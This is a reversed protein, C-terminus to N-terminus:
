GLILSQASRPVLRRALWVAVATALLTAGFKLPTAAFPSALSPSAAILRTAAFMPLLHFLYVFYSSRGFRSLAGDRVSVRGHLAFITVIVALSVLKSSLKLQSAALVPETYQLAMAEGISVALLVVIASVPLSIPAASLRRRMEPSRAILFGLQYFPAWVFFPLADYPFALPRWLGLFANAYTAATGLTFLGVALMAQVGISMREVLSMFLTMQVLVIVFYGIGIGTGTAFDLALDSIDLFHKRKTLMVFVVTWLTYPPLLRWLRAAISRSNSCGDFYGALALFVPVAFNVIQKQVLGFELEASGPALGIIQCSHIYIVALIAVGRIFDWFPDRV